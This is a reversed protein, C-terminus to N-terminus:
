VVAQAKMELYRNVVAMTMHQADVDLTRVGSRQLKELLLRREDLM